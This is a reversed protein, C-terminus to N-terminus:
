LSKYFVDRADANVDFLMYRRNMSACARGLVGSGAFIDLCLDNENSYLEIIRQLLKIPKQTAYNLKENSQVNNIDCWIDRLPVGEMEDLFRKIRPIGDKNYELRNDDHLAQMKDQTVYWQKKHDNWTYNLNPRPNVHPQTNHIATTVYEKNHISCKKVNSKQKYTDDYDYYIPNFRHNRTSKSYVIITDHYRNLKYKNKANGGTKWVIENKFCKDGFVEDCLVRYHHSICPEVHIVINGTQKLVRHCAIIREKAFNLYEEKSNFKDNFNYFDRGTNYPPDFYILDVSSTQLKKLLKSNDDIYYENYNLMFSTETTCEM